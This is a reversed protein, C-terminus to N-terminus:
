RRSDAPARIAYIRLGKIRGGTVEPFRGAAFPGPSLQEESGWDLYYDIGHRLLADTLLDENQREDPPVRGFYRAQMHFAAFLSADWRENSALNGHVGFDHALRAAMDFHEKGRHAQRSLENMHPIACSLVLWAALFGSAWTGLKHAAVVDDLLLVTMLVLCLVALWLYRIEVFIPMYGGAFVAITLLLPLAVSRVTLRPPKEDAPAVACGPKLRFGRWAAVLFCLLTVVAFPLLTTFQTAMARVNDAILRMQHRFHESSQWPRWTHMKVVAPDNWYSIADDSPPAILTEFVPDDGYCEPSVICYAREGATGFTLAGYKHTLLGIWPGAILVFVAIGYAFNLLVARRRTAPSGPADLGARHLHLANLLTFHLLFFPLAYSKALYALGGFLGAAAGQFPRDRYTGPLAYGCYMTLFLLLLIDPTVLILAYSLLPMVMCLALVSGAERSAGTRIAFWRVAFLMALGAMLEVLRAALLPALGLALVPAMLWSFLPGWYGNITRAFEGKLCQQAISVYATADTNIRYQFSPLLAIGLLVFVAIAMVFLWDIRKRTPADNM